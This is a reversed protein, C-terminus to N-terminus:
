VPERSGMGMVLTLKIVMLMIKFMLTMKNDEVDEDEANDEVDIDHQHDAEDGHEDVKDGVDIDDQDNDEVDIDDQDDILDQHEPIGLMREREM